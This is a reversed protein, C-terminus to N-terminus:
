FSKIFQKIGLRTYRSGLNLPAPAKAEWKVNDFDVLANFKKTGDSSFSINMDFGSSPYTYDLALSFDHDGTSLDVLLRETQGQANIRYEYGFEDDDTRGKPYSLLWSPSIRAAGRTGESLQMAASPASQNAKPNSASPDSQSAASLPTFDLFDANLPSLEGARLVVARALLLSQIDAILDPYDYKIGSISEACYVRKMKNVAIVSDGAIEIRGVEGLLSARVSISIEEGKKMYIKITPSIPLKNMRLKGSIEATQWDTYAPLITALAASRVSDLIVSQSLASGLAGEGAQASGSQAASSSKCSPLLISLFLLMAMGINFRFGTIHNVQDLGSSHSNNRQM